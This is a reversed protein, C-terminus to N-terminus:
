LAPPGALVLSGDTFAVPGSNKMHDLSHDASGSQNEEETRLSSERAAVLM